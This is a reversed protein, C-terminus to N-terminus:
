QGKSDIRFVQSTSIVEAAGMGPLDNEERTAEVPATYVHKTGAVYSGIAFLVVLGFILCAWNM